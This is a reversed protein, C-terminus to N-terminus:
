KSPNNTDICHQEFRNYHKLMIFCKLFLSIDHYKTHYEYPGFLFNYEFDNFALYTLSFTQSNAYINNRVTELFSSLVIQSPDITNKRLLLFDIQFLNHLLQITGRHVKKPYKKDSFRNRSNKSKCDLRIKECLVFHADVNNLDIAGLMEPVVKLLM